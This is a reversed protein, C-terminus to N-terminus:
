GETNRNKFARYVFYGGALLLMVPFAYAFIGMAGFTALVGVVVLAGAPWLAWLLRGEPKPLLYVLFFTVALGGFLLGVAGSFFNEFGVLLAVSVLAGGPIIAWWNTHDVMYIIWFSLGIMGLFISTGLIDALRSEVVSPLFILVGLGILALGPILAWWSKRDTIFVLLFILGGVAFVPGIINDWRISLIDFNNLM